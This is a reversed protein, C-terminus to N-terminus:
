GKPIDGGTFRANVTLAAGLLELWEAQSLQPVIEEQWQQRTLEGQVCAYFLEPGFTAPDYPEDEGERAPHRAILAEYEAPPLARITVPEYCDALAANATDLDAQAQALQTAQDDSLSFEAMDRRERAVLVAGRAAREIQPEVARLHHVVSPPKRRLLRSLGSGDAAKVADDASGM